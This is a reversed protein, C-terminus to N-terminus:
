FADGGVPQGDAKTGLRKFIAADISYSVHRVSGDAFVINIGSRHSSGFDALGNETTPANTDPAPPMNTSRMTDWDNGGSYGENDDSRSQQGAYYLNLRREAVLLTTTTGDRIDVIGLPKGFSNARIVGSGDGLNNSAYDGLAHTVLDNPGQSIYADAYTVTTPARRSPCFYVSFVTGVAVRQRANNTTASGGQWAAEGEIHPLIQFGWGAGQKDLVAPSGNIYTPPTGWDGGATPFFRWLDHHSHFALGIQRLNNTCQSRRAAERAAQVAPLILAALLGIIAIVVLLEILTFGSRHVPGPIRAAAGDRARRLEAVSSSHAIRKM